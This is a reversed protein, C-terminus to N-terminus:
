NPPRRNKPDPCKALHSGFSTRGAIAAALSLRLVLLPLFALPHSVRTPEQLTQLTKALTGSETLAQDTLMAVPSGSRGVEERTKRNFLRL